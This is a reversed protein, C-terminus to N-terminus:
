EDVLALPTWYSAALFDNRQSLPARDASIQLQELGAARRQELDVSRRM